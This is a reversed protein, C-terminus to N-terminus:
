PAARWNIKYEDSEYVGAKFEGTALVIQLVTETQKHLKRYTAYEDETLQDRKSNKSGIREGTLIECVDGEVDSNGYPRKRCIAPSGYEDGCWDVYMRRLLKLHDETVTFRIKRPVYTM